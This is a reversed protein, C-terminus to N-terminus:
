EALHHRALIHALTGADSHPQVDVAPNELALHHRGREQATDYAIEAVVAREDLKLPGQRDVGLELESKIKRSEAIPGAYDIRSDNGRALVFPAHQCTNFEGRDGGM